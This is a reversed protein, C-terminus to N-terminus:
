WRGMRAAVDDIRLKQIRTLLIVERYDPPLGGLAQELRQLREERRLGRSPSVSGAPLDTQLQLPARRGKQSASLVVNQAISALWGFFAKEGQWTLKEIHQFAKTFTEQLVDQLDLQQLAQPGM